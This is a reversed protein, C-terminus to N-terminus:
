EKEKEEIIQSKQYENFFCWHVFAVGCTSWFATSAQLTTVFVVSFVSALIALSLVYKWM